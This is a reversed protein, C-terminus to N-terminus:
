AAEARNRQNRGAKAYRNASNHRLRESESPRLLTRLLAETAPTFAPADAVLADLEDVYEAPVLRGHLWVDPRKTM